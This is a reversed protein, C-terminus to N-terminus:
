PTFRMEWHLHKSNPGSVMVCGSLVLIFYRPTAFRMGHDLIGTADRGWLGSSQISPSYMFTVNYHVHVCM